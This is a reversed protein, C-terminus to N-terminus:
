RNRVFGGNLTREHITRQGRTVSELVVVDGSPRITVTPRRCATPNMELGGEAPFRHGRTVVVTAIPTALSTGARIPSRRDGDTM